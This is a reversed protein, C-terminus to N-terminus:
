EAGFGAGVKGDKGKDCLKLFMTFSEALLVFGLDEKNSFGM